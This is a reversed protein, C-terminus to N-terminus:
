LFADQVIDEADAPNRVIQQAVTLMARQYRNFLEDFAKNNGALVAIILEADEADQLEAVSM